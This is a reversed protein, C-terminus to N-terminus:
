CISLKLLKYSDFKNIIFKICSFFHTHDPLVVIVFQLGVWPVASFPYLVNVTVLCEFSLLLLAVLERKRTLIIAFSSLAFYHM